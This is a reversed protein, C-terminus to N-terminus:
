ETEQGSAQQALGFGKITIDAQALVSELLVDLRGDSEESRM